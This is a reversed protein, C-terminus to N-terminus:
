WLSRGGLLIFVTIVALINAVEEAQRRKIEAQNM